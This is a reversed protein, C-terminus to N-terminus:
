VGPWELAPHNSPVWWATVDILAHSSVKAHLDVSGGAVPAVFANAIVEGPSANVNSTPPLATGAAGLTLHSHAAPAALTVTGVAALADPPAAVVDIDQGAGIPGTWGGTGDRTDLVRTPDLTALLASGHESFTAMLDVVVDGPASAYVCVHGDDGVAVHALGAIAEHPGFNVNSVEPVVGGCPYASLHGADDGAVATLNVAVLAPDGPPDLRLETARGDVRTDALRLPSVVSDMSLAGSADPSVLVAQVDVVVHTAGHTYVCVRQGETFRVFGSAARSSGAHNVTSALPRRDCDFVTLHGPGLPGAATVNVLAGEALSPVFGALDVSVVSGAAVPGGGGVRSDFARAPVMPELALPSAPASLEVPGGTRVARSLAGTFEAAMVGSREVYGDPYLHTGDWTGYVEPRARMEVDWDWTFFDAREAAIEDLAQNWAREQEVFPPDPFRTIKPWWIRHGPGIADVVVMIAQRACAVDVRCWGSDNAGLNVIWAESDWGQARWEAITATANVHEGWGPVAGTRGGAVARFQVPGWGQEVLRDSLTPGFRGGGIMVSDGFVTVAGRPGPRADFTEVLYTGVVAEAPAAGAALVALSGATIAALLRTTSRM